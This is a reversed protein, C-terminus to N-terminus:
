PLPDAPSDDRANVRAYLQRFPTATVGHVLTSAAIVLSGAAWLTAGSAGREAAHALYFLAAVGIPGFWGTFAAEPPGLGLPRRFLMLLPLRRLLLVAAAFAVGLWGLEAWESWPLVLGFLTFVPLIFVTNIAEQVEWEESLESRTLRHNYSLGAVFVGLVGEGGLLGVVGLVFATLSLAFALFASHEIDRHREAWTLLRGAADGLILGVAVAVGLRLAIETLGSDWSRGTVAVIGILVLPSALGDNAGSEISILVRMHLPLDQEAPEGSVVSSALVPDTPALAAGLLWASTFTFSLMLLSLGAVIAAMGVMVVAILLAIQGLRPRVERLPFRLAIGMLSVALVLQAATSLVADREAAPIEVVDAVAPGLVVGVAMALLPGSLPVDRLKRSFLGLVLALGGVAALYIELM